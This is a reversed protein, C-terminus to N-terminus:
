SSDDNEHIMRALRIELGTLKNSISVSNYM